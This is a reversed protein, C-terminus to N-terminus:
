GRRKSRPTWDPCLRIHARTKFVERHGYGCLVGDDFSRRLHECDHCKFRSHGRRGRSALWFILGAAIVAIAIWSGVCVGDKPARQPM